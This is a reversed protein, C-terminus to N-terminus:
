TTDSAQDALFGRDLATAQPCGLLALTNDLEAKLIDIVQQAGAEGGAALGYLVARGIMVADAGLALAKAIDAGSRIGSDVLVTGCDPRAQQLLQVPSPVDELQRGGHNSLVVGDIGLRECREADERRLVGKVLMRRPWRERLRELAAWDFSADMQRNLLTAQRGIDDAATSKVNALNPLGGRLQDLTWAPHVLCDLLFRPSPRFPVAFGNRNDRPRRGGVPVDVTLVLTGYGAREARDVLQDAFDRDMVYLQFWLSGGAAQAVEEISSTSATSLVFPIGNREAVRALLVDGSGRLVGNLGTPALIFPLPLHKGFLTISHDRRSVDVLPRPSFLIEDLARRNRDLGRESGAAGDLYDFIARPLRRRAKERMQLVTFTM